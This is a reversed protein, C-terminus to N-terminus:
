WLGPACESSLPPASAFLEDRLALRAHEDMESSIVRSEVSMADTLTVFYPPVLVANFGVGYSRGQRPLEPNSQVVATVQSAGVRTAGVLNRLQGPNIEQSEGERLADPSWCILAFHYGRTVDGNSTVFSGPPIEFREGTLGHGARWVRLRTPNADRWQPASLMASFRVSPRPDEAVLARLSPRVSNGVGWLFVGDNLSRETNKRKLIEDIPEGSETGYRTWCFADATRLPTANRAQVLPSGLM